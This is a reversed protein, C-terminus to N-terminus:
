TFHQKIYAVLSSAVLATTSAGSRYYFHEASGEKDKVYVESPSRKCKVVLVRKNEFDCFRLDILMMQHHGIRDKVLNVLHRGMADESKFKDDAVGVASGDDGVGILILGGESNLFAAITNLVSMELRPDSKKTHLNMRLTSKFELATSEGNAVIDAVQLPKLTQEQHELEAPAVVMHAPAISSSAALPEAVAKLGSEKDESSDSAETKTTSPIRKKIIEIAFGVDKVFSGLSSAEYAELLDHKNSFMGRIKASPALEFFIADLTRLVDQSGVDQMAELIERRFYNGNDSAIKYLEACLINELDSDPYKGRYLTLVARSNKLFNERVRKYLQPSSAQLVLWALHDPEIYRGADLRREVSRIVQDITKQDFAITDGLLVGFANSCEFLANPFESDNAHELQVLLSNINKANPLNVKM